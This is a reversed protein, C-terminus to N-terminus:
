RGTGTVNEIATTPPGAPVPVYTATPDVDPDVSADAPASATADPAPDPVIVIDPSTTPALTAPTPNTHSAPHASIAWVVALVYAAVLVLTFVATARAWRSLSPASRPPAPSHHVIRRM